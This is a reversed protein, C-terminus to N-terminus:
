CTVQSTKPAQFFYLLCLPLPVHRGEWTERVNGKLSVTDLVLSHHMRNHAMDGMDRADESLFPLLLNIPQRSLEQALISQSGCPRCAPCTRDARGAEPRGGGGHLSRAWHCPLMSEPGPPIGSIFKLLLVRHNLNPLLCYFARKQSCCWILKGNWNKALFETKPM